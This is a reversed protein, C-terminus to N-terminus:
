MQLFLRLCADTCMNMVVTLVSSHLLRSGGKMDAEASILLLYSQTSLFCTKLLLKFCQAARLRQIWDFM